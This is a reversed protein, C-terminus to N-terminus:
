GEDRPGRQARTGGEHRCADAAPGGGPIVGGNSSDLCTLDTTWAGATHIGPPALTLRGPGAASRTHSHYPPRPNGSYNYGCVYTRRYCLLSYCEPDDIDYQSHILVRYAKKISISTAHRGCFVGAPPAQSAQAQSLIESCKGNCLM